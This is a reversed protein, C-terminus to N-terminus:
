LGNKFFFNFFPFPLPFPKWLGNGLVFFFFSSFGREFVCVDVCCVKWVIESAPKLCFLSSTCM